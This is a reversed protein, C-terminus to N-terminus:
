NIRRLRENTLHQLSKIKTTVAPSLPRSGRSTSQVNCIGRPGFGFQSVGVLHREITSSWSDLWEQFDYYAQFLFNENKIFEMFNWASKHWSTCLVHLDLFGPRRQNEIDEMLRSFETGLSTGLCFQVCSCLEPKSTKQPSFQTYEFMNISRSVKSTTKQNSLAPTGRSNIKESRLLIEVINM